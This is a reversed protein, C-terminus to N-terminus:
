ERALNGGEESDGDESGSADSDAAGDWGDRTSLKAMEVEILQVPHEEPFERLEESPFARSVLVALLLSELGTFYMNWYGERQENRLEERQEHPFGRANATKFCEDSRYGFHTLLTSMMLEQYAMLLVVIKISVFKKTTNWAHLLDHSASYLIFLGYLALFASLKVIKHAWGSYKTFTDYPLTLASWADMLAAVVVAFMYQRLLSRALAVHKPQLNFPTMFPRLCCGLPPVGFHKKPGQDHLANMIKEAIRNGPHKLSELALILYLIVGFSSLTIAEFQTQLLKAMPRSRPSLLSISSTVGLVPAFWLIRCYYMQLLSIPAAMYRNYQRWTVLCTAITASFCTVWAVVFVGPSEKFCTEMFVPMTPGLPLSRTSNATGEDEFGGSGM